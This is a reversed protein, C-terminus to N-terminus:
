GWDKVENALDRISEFIKLSFAYMGIYRAVTGALTFAKFTCM